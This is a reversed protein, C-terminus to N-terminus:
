HHIATVFQKNEVLSFNIILFQFASVATEHVDLNGRFNNLTSFTM